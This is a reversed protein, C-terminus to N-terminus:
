KLVFYRLVLCLVFSCTDVLDFFFFVIFLFNSLPLFSCGKKPFGGRKLFLSFFLVKPFFSVQGLFLSPLLANNLCFINMKTVIRTNVYHKPTVLERMWPTSHLIEEIWPITITEWWENILSQFKNCFIHISFFSNSIYQKINKSQISDHLM